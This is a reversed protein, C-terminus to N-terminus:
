TSRAQAGGSPTSQSVLSACRKVFVALCPNPDTLMGTYFQRPNLFSPDYGTLSRRFVANCDYIKLTM